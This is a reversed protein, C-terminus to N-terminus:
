SQPELLQAFGFNYRRLKSNRVKSYRSFDVGDFGGSFREIYRDALAPTFEAFMPRRLELGEDAFDRGHHYDYIMVLAWAGTIFHGGALSTLRGSKVAELAETSTNVGSFWADVGPKGGRKEWAAMAGFAMLDNGAWVLKVDPYRRYLSEAQQAANERAWAAYVEEELVVMPAEAVARHMGQNRNISSPTSRDGAIALMHLKGDPGFAKEKKGREILARATLYGADEAQPELSGLWGKYKGRPSGIGGRQDVPISSYALFSKVGAPDIIALLRDAVSYDDTVVIYEPRKGAPRAVMERAIELTKLPERQAYRVEFTMGLSRAAAQMAQAATVWYVEDSKGPNIFAVSQARAVSGCLMVALGLALSLSVARRRVQQPQSAEAFM